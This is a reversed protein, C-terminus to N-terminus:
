LGLWDLAPGVTHFSGLVVIRDERAAIRRAAECGRAVSACRAVDVCSPPLRARLKEASIGRPEDETGVLIWGDIVSALARGVAEIDKDALMGAIAWTRGNISSQRLGLALAQAAPENHAVDLIWQPRLEFVQMRGQLRVARLAAAVRVGDLPPARQGLAEFAALANAANVYQLAGPLASPPLQAFQWRKGRYTWREQALRQVAHSVGFQWVPCGLAAAAAHVSAPLDSAGLVVPRQARLIGAKERGIDDLTDGLWDRHDFGISCIVAVDADIVNTADLRGGLGVELLLVDVGANRFCDLAALANFEFFTLTIDGRAQEIREFSAILEADTAAVGGVAIRERYHRLHPSTFSGDRLGAARAFAGLHAVTSGKGNTGAVTIVPCAPQSLDLRQAVRAVRELGLDIGLVHVRQQWQLWDDLTRGGRGTLM